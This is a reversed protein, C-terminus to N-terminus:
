LGMRGKVQNVSISMEKIKSELEELGIKHVSLIEYIVDVKNATEKCCGNKKQKKKEAM